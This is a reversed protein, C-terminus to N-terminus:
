ATFARRRTFCSVVDPITSALVRRSLRRLRALRVALISLAAIAGVGWLGLLVAKLHPPQRCLIRRNGIALCVGREHRDIRVRGADGAHRDDNGVAVHRGAPEMDAAHARARADRARLCHRSDPDLTAAGGLAPSARGGRRARRPAFWIDMSTAALLTM